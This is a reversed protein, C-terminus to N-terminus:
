SEEGWWTRTDPCGELRWEKHVDADCTQDAAARCVPCPMTLEVM